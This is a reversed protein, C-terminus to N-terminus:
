LQQSHEERSQRILPWSEPLLEGGRRARIAGALAAADALAALQQVIEAQTLRVGSRVEPSNPMSQKMGTVGKPLIPLFPAALAEAAAREVRVRRGVRRAALRGTAIYKRVTKPNLRLLAATEQVTLLDM